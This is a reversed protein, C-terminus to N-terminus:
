LLKLFEDSTFEESTFSLPIFPSFIQLLDRFQLRFVLKAVFPRDTSQRAERM